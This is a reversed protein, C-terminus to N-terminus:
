FGVDDSNEETEIEDIVSEISSKEPNILFTLNDLKEFLMRQQFTLVSSFIEIRNKIESMRKERLKIGSELRKNTKNQIDVMFNKIEEELENIEQELNTVAAKNLSSQAEPTSFLPLHVVVNQPSLAEILNQVSNLLSQNQKAVFYAQGQPNLRIAYKKVFSRFIVRIDDATHSQFYLYQRKLEELVSVYEQNDCQWIDSEIDYTLKAKQTYNLDENEDISKKVVGLVFRSDSDTPKVIYDLNFSKDISKKSEQVAKTFAKKETVESPLLFNPVSFKNAASVLDDHSIINQEDDPIVWGIVSGLFEGATPLAKRLDDINNIAAVMISEGKFKIISVTSFTNQKDIM